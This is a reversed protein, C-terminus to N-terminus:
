VVSKKAPQKAILTSSFRSNDNGVYNGQKKARFRPFRTM